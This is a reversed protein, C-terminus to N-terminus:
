STKSDVWTQMTSAWTHATKVDLDLTQYKIGDRIIIRLLPMGSEHIIQRIEVIQGYPTSIQEM